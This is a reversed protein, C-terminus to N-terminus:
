YQNLFLVKANRLRAQRPSSSSSLGSIVCMWSGSPICYFDSVKGGLRNAETCRFLVISILHVYTNFNINTCVFFRPM